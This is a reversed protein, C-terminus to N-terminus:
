VYLDDFPPDAPFFEQHDCGLGDLLTKLVSRYSYVPGTAALDARRTEGLRRGPRAVPGGMFPMSMWRTALDGGHDSGRASNFRNGRATRSFESGLVVLTHDWYRGGAPHTMRKLAAELGGLLRTVEDLQGALASEEGSHLDYGGQDFYVAPCGFHFLRLALRASRGPGGDGFIAALQRNSIGDVPTEADNGIKLVASNFVETYAKAAKRTEIFADIGTRLAPHLRERQRQDIRGALSVAWAPAAAGPDLSFRDFGDGGVVPPRSAAYVGLGRGMGSGGLVFAPLSVQGAAAAQRARERLGHNIMTFFGVPGDVYGTYWRELATGHNGDASGALPEHDVCPLVAIQNAIEPVPKVGLAKLAAGAMGALHPARALLAGVGWETGQARGSAPGFPNFEDAVDANFATPFRFGSALRVYLLHKVRGRGSTQALLRDPVFISAAAGALLQRRSSMM